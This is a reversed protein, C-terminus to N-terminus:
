PKLSWDYIANNHYEYESNFYIEASDVIRNYWGLGFGDNAEDTNPNDYYNYRTKYFNDAAKVYEDFTTTPDLLTGVFNEDKFLAPLNYSLLVLANFEDQTFKKFNWIAVDNVVDEYYGMRLLQLSNLDNIDICDNNTTYKTGLSDNLDEIGEEETDYTLGPGFTMVGDGVDYPRMCTDNEVLYIPFEYDNIIGLGKTDIKMSYKIVHLQWFIILMVIIILVSLIIGVKKKVM